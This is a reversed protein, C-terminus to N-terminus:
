RTKAADQIIGMVAARLRENIIEVNIADVGFCTAEFATKGNQTGLSKGFGLLIASSYDFLKSVERLCELRPDDSTEDIKDNM